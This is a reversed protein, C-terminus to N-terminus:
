IHRQTEAYNITCNETMWACLFNFWIENINCRSIINKGYECKLM